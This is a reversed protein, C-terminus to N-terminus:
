RVHRSSLVRRDSQTAMDPRVGKRKIEPEAAEPMSSTGRLFYSPMRFRSAVRMLGHSMLLAVSMVAVGGVGDIAYHWGLFITALWNLLFWPLTMWLTWRWKRAMVVVACWALAVHLSPFAQTGPLFGNQAIRGVMYDKLLEILSASGTGSLDFLEPKYFVPGATPFYIAVYRTLHFAIVVACLAEAVLELHGSRALGALGLFLVLWLIQYITDWFIPINVAQDLLFAFLFRENEWLWYDYWVSSDIRYFEVLNATAGIGYAAILVVLMAESGPRSLARVLARFDLKGDEGAAFRPALRISDVLILLSTSAAFFFLLGLQVSIQNTGIPNIAHSGAVTHAIVALVSSVLLTMFTQPMMM